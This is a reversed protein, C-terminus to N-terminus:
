TARRPAHPPPPTRKALAWVGGYGAAAIVAAVIVQFVVASQTEFETLFALLSVLGMGILAALIVCFVQGGILGRVVKSSTSSQYALGAAATLVGAVAIFTVGYILFM